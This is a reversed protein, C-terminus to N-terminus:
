SFNIFQGGFSQKFKSFGKWGLNIKPLREDWIGEFDFIELKRKKSEKIAEWVCLTPAFIKKAQKNSCNHWYFAMNPSQLVLLGALKPIIVFFCKNGFSEVLSKLEYFSPQFFWDFPKNKKWLNFFMKLQNPSIKGGNIIKVQLNNKQVIKLNYRTKPKMNGLLNNLSNTLDLWLTKSPTLTRKNFIQFYIRGNTIKEILFPEDRFYFKKANLPLLPPQYRLAKKITFPLWFFKRTFVQIHNIKHTQWGIKEMFRAYQPTQRVDILNAFKNKTEVM